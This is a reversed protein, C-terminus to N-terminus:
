HKRFSPITTLKARPSPVGAEPRCPPAYAQFALRRSTCGAAPPRFRAYSGVRMARRSPVGVEPRCRAPARFRCRHSRLLGVCHAVRESLALPAVRSGVNWLSMNWECISRELSMYGILRVRFQRMGPSLRSRFLRMSRGFNVCAASESGPISAHGSEASEPISAHKQGFNVCAASESGRISAHGSGASESISAHEAGSSAHRAKRAEFQRMGAGNDCGARCCRRRYRVWSSTASEAIAALKAVVADTRSGM